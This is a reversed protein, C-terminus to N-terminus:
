SSTMAFMKTLGGIKSKQAFCVEEEKTEFNLASDSKKLKISTSHTKDTRNHSGEINM